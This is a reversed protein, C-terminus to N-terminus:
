QAKPIPKQFVDDPLYKSLEKSIDDVANESSTGINSIVQVLSRHVREEKSLRSFSFEELANSLAQSVVPTEEATSVGLIKKKAEVFDIVKAPM